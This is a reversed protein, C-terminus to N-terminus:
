TGANVITRVWSQSIEVRAPREIRVYGGDELKGLRAHVAIVVRQLDLGLVAGKMAQRHEVRVGPALGDVSAGLNAGASRGLLRDVVPVQISLVASAGGKVGPM